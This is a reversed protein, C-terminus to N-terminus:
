SLGKLIGTTEVGASDVAVCLTTVCSLASTTSASQPRIPTAGSWAGGVPTATTYANDQGDLAVCATTTLCSVADLLGEGPVPPIAEVDITKWRRAPGKPTVTATALGTSSNGYGVGVCMAVTPCDIASFVGGGLQTGTGKWAKAGGAPNTSVYHQDGGAVCFTSTPCSISLLPGTAIPSGIWTHAGGAPDTSVLVSGKAGGDVAV